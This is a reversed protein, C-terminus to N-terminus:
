MKYVLSTLFNSDMREKGAVLPTKRYNTLYKVEIDMQENVTCVGGIMSDVQYREEYDEHPTGVDLSSVLRVNHGVKKHGNLGFKLWKVTDSTSDTYEERTVDVGFSGRLGAEDGKIFYRFLGTGLNLRQDYGAFRDKLYGSNLYFSDRDSKIFESVFNANQKDTNTEGNARGYIALGNYGFKLRENRQQTLDFNFNTKQEDTNGSTSTYGLSLRGEVPAAISALPSFAILAAVALIASKKL